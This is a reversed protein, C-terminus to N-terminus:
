FRSNGITVIRLGEIDAVEKWGNRRAPPQYSM